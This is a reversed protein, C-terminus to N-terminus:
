RSVIWHRCSLFQDTRVIRFIQVSPPCLGIIAAEISLATVIWTAIGFVSFLLTRHSYPPKAAATYARTKVVDPYLKMIILRSDDERESSSLGHLCCCPPSRRIRDSSPLEFRLRACEPSPPMTGIARAIWHRHGSLESISSLTIPSASFLNDNNVLRFNTARACDLSSPLGSYATHDLIISQRRVIEM